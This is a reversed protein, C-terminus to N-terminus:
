QSACLETESGHYCENADIYRTAADFDNGNPEASAAPAYRYRCAHHLTSRPFLGVNLRGTEPANLTIHYPAPSKDRSLPSTLHLQTYSFSSPFLTTTVIIPANSLIIRM